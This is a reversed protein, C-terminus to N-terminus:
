RPQDLLLQAAWGRSATLDAAAPITLGKRLIRDWVSPAAFVTAAALVALRPDRLSRPGSGTPIEDYLALASDFVPFSSRVDAMHGGDVLYRAAIVLSGLTSGLALAAGLDFEGDRITAQELPSNALSLAEAILARRSRFYHYILGQNVGAREAIARTRVDAPGLEVYLELAARILADRASAPRGAPDPGSRRSTAGTAWPVEIAADSGREVLVRVADVVAADRVPEDIEASRTGIIFFEEFTLYGLVVSLVSYAVARATPSPKLPDGGRRREIEAAVHRPLSRGALVPAPDLEGLGCRIVVRGVDPHERAVALLAAAIDAPDSSAAAVLRRLNAAIRAVVAGELGEKSGYYRGILTHSCGAGAAISRISVAGPGRAAFQRQAENLLARRTPASRDWTNRVGAKGEIEIRRM